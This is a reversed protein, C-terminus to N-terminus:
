MKSNSFVIVTNLTFFIPDKIGRVMAEFKVQVDITKCLDSNDKAPQGIKEPRSRPRRNSKKKRRGSEEARKEKAFSQFLGGADLHSRNSSTLDSSYDSSSLWTSPAVMKKVNMKDFLRDFTDDKPAPKLSGGAVGFVPSNDLSDPNLRM